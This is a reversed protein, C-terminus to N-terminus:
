LRARHYERLSKKNNQYYRLFQRYGERYTETGEKQPTIVRGVPKMSRLQELTMSKTGLAALMAAGKATSYIPDDIVTLQRELIDSFIQPWVSSLSGGGSMVMGESEAKGRNGLFAEVVGLLWKTNYAVGEMVARVVDNRDHELSLNFLGGRAYPDEIPTREGYLWPLFILKKAGRPSSLAMRDMEEYKNQVPINLITGAYEFANGANEQTAIVFYRGPIASPLSATNHFIDTKKFPVHATIWSSTGVYLLLRYDDACGAGVPSCQNDGCGSIVKTGEPLGTDGSARSTVPGVVETPAVLDPLKERDLGALKLLGDDYKVHYPDRNDTAWLTATNDWSGVFAGTMKMVIYDKPELFKHTERYLDPLNQKIYLIHALSDKGSHTPAGGTKRLWTYLKDIRYGSISPFGATLRDIVDRGRTDLWIVAKHLPNGESDVPVTGGWQGTFGIGRVDIEYGSSFIDRIGESVAGWWREPDQEATGSKGLEIPYRKTSAARIKGQLDFVAVKVSSTGLDVGVFDASSQLLNEGLQLAV